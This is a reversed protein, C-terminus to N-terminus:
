NRLGYLDLTREVMADAGYREAVHARGLRRASETLGTDSLAALMTEAVAPATDQTCVLGTRGPLVTESAGGARTTVVPVGHWQAELLVNPTGEYRSTLVFLDLAELFARIDRVEGAFHLVSELGLTKRRALLENRLPGSGAIVFRTEPRAQHVKAAAELWLAPRKEANLRFVGGILRTGTGAFRTRVQRASVADGSPTDPLYVGNRVEVFREAPLGLWEAYSEVGARSNVSLVVEEREALALFGPKLWENHYEFHTPNLNRLSIVIRPVGAIVAAMGHKVSTQDQWLHVVAPRRERLVRVMDLSEFLVDHPLLSLAEALPRSVEAYLRPGPSSQRPLAAVDIRAATVTEIHFALGAQRYLNEAVLAVDIGRVKLGLLTNVVQREAGGAALSCNVVIVRGPVPEIAPEYAAAREFITEFLGHEITADVPLCTEAHSGFAGTLAYHNAEVFATAPSGLTARWVRTVGPLRRLLRYARRLPHDDSVSTLVARLRAGIRWLWARIRSM